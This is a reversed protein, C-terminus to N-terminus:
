YSVEPRTATVSCTMWYPTRVSCNNLAIQCATATNYAVGQGWAVPSNAQCIVRGTYVQAQAPATGILAGATVAFGLAAAAVMAIIKKM